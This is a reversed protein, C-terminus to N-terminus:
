VSEEKKFPLAVVVGGIMLGLWVLILGNWGITGAAGAFLKSSIAAAMYSLFDLFGTAGSVMGTDRLSPCYRSWLMSAACNSSFIALIMFAINFTPQKFLYVLLFSIASLSFALLITLDMNRKLREYVFVAVFASASIVLTAATFLLSAQQESFKLYQALYTPLWFVVTTRVIGTLIAILAFKIIRHKILIAVGGGFDTKPKQYQGYRIIGKLELAHFCAFCSIAMVILVASSVSFVAQWSLGAALIGALPSGFFSAFMYGLSCRTAHIPETNEAVLKTMPGYIMALFFGTMAYAAYAALETRTVLSFVFNTVGAMALGVSIMYKAKIKDGIAGNILQGIGYTILFLFSISGIQDQSFVGDKIMIPTVASLINRALYVALYSVACMGGILIANRANKSLTM